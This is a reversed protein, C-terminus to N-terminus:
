ENDEKGEDEAALRRLLKILLIRDESSLGRIMSELNENNKEM